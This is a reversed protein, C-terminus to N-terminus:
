DCKKKKMQIVKSPQVLQQPECVQSNLFTMMEEIYSLNGVKRIEKIVPNKRGCSINSSDTILKENKLVEEQLKSKDARLTRISDRLQSIKIEQESIVKKLHVNDAQLICYELNKQNIAQEESKDMVPLDFNTILLQAVRKVIPTGSSYVYSFIGGNQEMEKKYLCCGSNENRLFYCGEPAEHKIEELTKDYIKIIVDQELTLEQVYSKAIMKISNLADIHKDYLGRISVNNNENIICITYKNM